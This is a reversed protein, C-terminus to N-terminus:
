WNMLLEASHNMLTIRVNHDEDRDPMRELPDNLAITARLFPKM